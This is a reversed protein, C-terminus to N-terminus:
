RLMTQQGMRKIAGPGNIAQALHFGYLIFFSRMFHVMFYLFKVASYESKEKIGQSYIVCDLPWCIGNVDRSVNESFFQVSFTM